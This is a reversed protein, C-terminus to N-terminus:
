LIVQVGTATSQVIKKSFVFTNARVINSRSGSFKLRIEPEANRLDFVFGERALERSTLYSNAYGNLNQREGDGLNVPLKGIAKWAKVLENQNLCRDAKAQPNYERLPYLRNNIFFQVSNLNFEEPALGDYYNQAAPNEVLTADHYHTFCAVAKSAVSTIPIQHRNVITPINNLFTDYSTFEYNLGKMLANAVNPPPVVQCLRFETSKVKYSPTDKVVIYDATIPPGAAASLNKGHLEGNEVGIVITTAGQVDNKVASNAATLSTITATHKVSNATNAAGQDGFKRIEIKNGIALGLASFGVPNEQEDGNGIAGKFVGSPMNRTTDLAITISNANGAGATDVFNRIHFCKNDDSVPSNVIDYAREGNEYGVDASCEVFPAVKQLVLESKALFLEIRLEGFNLIPILKEDDWYNFIGSKLRICFRRAMPELTGDAKQPCLQSNATHGGHPRSPEYVVSKGDAKLRITKARVPHGVGEKLQLQTPDDYLYQNEISVWQSYNPLSELLIGTEKSYINIQDILAHAGANKAFTWVSSGASDVAVDFVLYSDRKLYGVEPEINYIIKQGPNFQEGNEPVISITQSSNMAVVNGGMDNSMAM